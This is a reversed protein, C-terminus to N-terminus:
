QCLRETTPVAMEATPQATEIILLATRAAQWDKGTAPLATVTHTSAKEGPFLATWYTSSRGIFKYRDPFASTTGSLARRFSPSSSRYNASSIKNSSCKNM